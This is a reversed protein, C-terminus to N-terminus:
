PLAAYARTIRDTVPAPFAEFPEADIRRRAGTGRHRWTGVARGGAIVTARFM